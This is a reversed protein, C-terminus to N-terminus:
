PKNMNIEQFSQEKNQRCIIQKLIRCPAGYIKDSTPIGNKSNLFCTKLREEPHIRKTPVIKLKNQYQRIREMEKMEKESILSLPRILTMDFKTMKLKAAHNWVIGPLFSEYASIETIDDL